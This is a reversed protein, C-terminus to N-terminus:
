LKLGFNNIKSIFLWDSTRTRMPSVGRGPGSHRGTIYLGYLSMWHYIIREKKGGSLRRELWPIIWDSPQPAEQLRRGGRQRWSAPPQYGWSDWTSGHLSSEHQHRLSIFPWHSSGPLGASSVASVAGVSQLSCDAATVVDCCCWLLLTLMLWLWGPVASSQMAASSPCQKIPIELLTPSKATPQAPLFNSLNSILIVSM